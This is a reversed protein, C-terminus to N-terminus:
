IGMKELRWGKDPLYNFITTSCNSINMRLAGAPLKALMEEPLGLVLLAFVRIIGGHTVIAYRPECHPDAAAAEAELRAKFRGVRAKLHESGEMGYIGLDMIHRRREYESGYLKLLESPHRGFYAGTNIERLDDDFIFGDSHYIEPFIIEATQKTRLVDSCFYKDFKSDKYKEHAEAAQARGEPSLRIPGWGQHVGSANCTTQGHRIFHFQM